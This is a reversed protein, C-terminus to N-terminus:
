APRLEPPQYMRLFNTALEKDAFKGEIQDNNNYKIELEYRIIPSTVAQDDYINIFLVAEEVTTLYSPSGHLPLVRIHEIRRNVSLTLAHLFTEISSRNQFILSRAVSSREDQTLINWQHVKKAFESDATTEDFSADLWVEQFAAIVTDIPFYLVNFSLSAMQTLAGQTFVGALIIGVFPASHSYRLTLPQIAGQIEQAKNRSHKTYRRWATEIFAVPSGAISQSGNRELVYDLDHSNGFADKWKVKNGTRTGRPGKKDLFLEHTRAFDSLLPEVARELLDGIIQGFRHAPSQAM